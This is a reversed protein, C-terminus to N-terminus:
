MVRVSRNKLGITGSKRTALTPVCFLVPVKPAASGLPRKAAIHIPRRASPSRCIHCRIWPESKAARPTSDTTAPASWANPSQAKEVYGGPWSM